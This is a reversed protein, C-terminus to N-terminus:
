YEEHCRVKLVFGLDMFSFYRYFKIDFQCNPLANREGMTYASASCSHMRVVNSGM